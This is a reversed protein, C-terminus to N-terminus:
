LYGMDELHEKMNADLEKSKSSIGSFNEISDKWDDYLSFMRNYEKSEQHRLDRNENPLSYLKNDQETIIIKYEDSRVAAVASTPLHSLDVDRNHNKIREYDEVSQDEVSGRLDQSVAINRSENRIDYGQFQSADAGASALITQMIDIHQTPMDTHNAINDLGHTVLPVHTVADDLIMHHGLLGKEGFLEGHDSTIVVIMDDFQNQLFRFLEGICADTYKIVADYMAYIMNWEENTMSLGSAMWEYLEEHMRKVYNLAETSTSEIQDVFESRYNVPPIYPHHPDNYHIYCFFPKNQAQRIKQKAIETTFFSRNERHSSKDLSIGPGHERVNFLYKLLTLGIEPKYADKLKIPRVFEEFRTDIGKAAGAYGNESVGITHYGEEALLEPATDLSDPIMDGSRTGVMGHQFPYLGTLMSPVSVPTRTSHAIANDFKEGNDSKAIQDLQPTTNRGYGHVSTHDARVSDLTIWVINKDKISM